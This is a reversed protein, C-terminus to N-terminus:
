QCEVPEFVFGQDFTIPVEKKFFTRGYQTVIEGYGQYLKGDRRLFAAPNKFVEEGDGMKYTFDAFLTDGQFIGTIEGKMDDKKAFKLNLKGEVKGNLDNIRLTATDKGVISVFCEDRLTDRSATTSQPSPQQNCGLFLTASILIVLLPTKM